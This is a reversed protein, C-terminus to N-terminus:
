NVEIIHYGRSGTGDGSDLPIGLRPLGSPIIFILATMLRPFLWSIVVEVIVPLGGLLLCLCADGPGMLGGLVNLSARWMITAEHFVAYGLNFNGSSHSTKKEVSFAGKTVALCSTVGSPVFNTRSM